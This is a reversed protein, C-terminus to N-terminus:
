VYVLSETCKYNDGGRGGGRCQNLLPDNLSVPLQLIGFSNGQRKIPGDILNNTDYVLLIRYDDYQYIQNYTSDLKATEEGTLAYPSSPANLVDICLAMRESISYGFRRTSDCPGRLGLRYCEGDTHMALQHRNNDVGPCQTVTCGLEGSPLFDVVQGAPCTGRTLLPVCADEPKPFPFQGVPCDCLPDGYASYYYRRGGKCEVADYIDHCLGDEAIFIRGRGCLRPSCTAQWFM